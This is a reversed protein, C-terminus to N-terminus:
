AAGLEDIKRRVAEVDARIHGSPLFHWDGSGPPGYRLHLQCLRRITQGTCSYLRGIANPSLRRDPKM